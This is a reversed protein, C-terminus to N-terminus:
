FKGAQMLFYEGALLLVGGCLRKVWLLWPGSKPLASLVGSFTGVLILSAGLGYSFVFMLSVAHWVNQQSGVYLLLTGLVPATCPGMVLGSVMGALLVAGINSNSVVGSGGRGVGMLPLPLLDWMVLAFYLLMNAVGLYIWPNNQLQGFIKGTLAAFVALASYTLAVGLVYILSVVLGMLKTGRTNFGAIFGATIPLVPYVCPTFSVVVGSGFVILYDRFTGTLEMNM